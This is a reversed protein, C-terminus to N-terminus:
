LNQSPVPLYIQWLEAWRHYATAIARRKVLDLSVSHGVVILGSQWSAGLQGIISYIDRVYLAPSYDSRDQLHASLGHGPFDLAIVVAPVPCSKILSPAVLDFSSANDLWGHLCLIPIFRSIKSTTFAAASGIVQQEHTRENFDVSATTSGASLPPTNRPQHPLPIFRSTLYELITEDSSFAKATVFSNGSGDRLRFCLEM